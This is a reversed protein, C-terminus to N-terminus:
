ATPLLALRSIDALSTVPCKPRRRGSFFYSSWPSSQDVDIHESLRVVIAISMLRCLSVPFIFERM